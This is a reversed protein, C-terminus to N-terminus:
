RDVFKNFRSVSGDQTTEQYLFALRNGDFIDFFKEWSIRELRAEPEAFDIRLIGGKGDGEVRAPVGDREEVWRRIINHDTTTNTESM